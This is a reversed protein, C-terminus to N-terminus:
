LAIVVVIMVRKLDNADRIHSGKDTVRDPVLLFAEFAEFTSHLFSLPGGKRFAPAMKRM